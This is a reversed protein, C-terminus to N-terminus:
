SCAQEGSGHSWCPSVQERPQSFCQLEQLAAQVVCHPDHSAAHLSSAHRASQAVVVALQLCVHTRVMSRHSVPVQVAARCFHAACL